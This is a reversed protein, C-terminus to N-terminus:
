PPLAKPPMYAVESNGNSPPGVEVLKRLVDKDIKLVVQDAVGQIEGINLALKSSRLAKKLNLERAINSQLEVEIGNIQFTDSDFLIETVKGIKWGKAGVVTKGIFDKAKLIIKPCKEKSPPSIKKM